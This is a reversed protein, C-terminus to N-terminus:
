KKQPLFAIIRTLWGNIIAVITFISLIAVVTLGWIIQKMTEQFGYLNVVFYVIAVILLIGATSSIFLKYKELFEAIKSSIHLFFIIICNLMFRMASFVASFYVLTLIFLASYFLFPHETIYATNFKDKFWLGLILTLITFFLMSEIAKIRYRLQAEPVKNILDFYEKTDLSKLYEKLEEHGKKTIKYSACEQPSEILGNEKLKAMLPYFSLKYNFDTLNRQISTSDVGSMAFPSKDLIYLIRWKARENILDIDGETM